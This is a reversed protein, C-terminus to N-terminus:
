GGGQQGRGWGGGCQVTSGGDGVEAESSERGKVRHDTGDGDEVEAEGRQGM